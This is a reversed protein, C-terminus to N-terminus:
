CGEVLKVKPNASLQLAGQGENRIKFTTEVPTGFVQYGADIETQAVVAKPASGPDTPMNIARPQLTPGPQTEGVPGSPWGLLIAGSIILLIAVGITAGMGWARQSVPAQNKRPQSSAKKTM